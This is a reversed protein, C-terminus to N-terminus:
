KEETKKAPKKKTKAPAKKAAQPKEEEEPIMELYATMAFGEAIAYTLSAHGFGKGAYEINPTGAM